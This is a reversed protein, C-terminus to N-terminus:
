SDLFEIIMEAVDEKGIDVTVTHNGRELWRTEKRASGINGAIYDMSDAPVVRDRRSQIILADSTVRPLVKMAANILRRLHWAAMVPVGDSYCVHLKRAEPDDLGKEEDIHRIIKIFPRVLPALVARRDPIRRPTSILVIKRPNFEFALLLSLIGGMSLGALYIDDCFSALEYYADRAAGLWDRGTSQAMDELSTGHGPLRPVSITYGADILAQAPYKMEFPSGLFGHVLLVGRSGGRHFLPGAGPLLRIDESAHSSSKAHNQPTIKNEL